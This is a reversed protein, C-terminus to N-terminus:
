PRSRICPSMEDGHVGSVRVVRKGPKAGKAVTASAHRHQGSPMQVGQFNPPHKTGADLRERRARQFSKATLNERRHLRNRNPDAFTAEVRANLRELRRLPLRHARIAKFRDHLLRDLREEPRNSM